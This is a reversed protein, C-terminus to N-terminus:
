RQNAFPDYVASVRRINSYPKYQPLLARGAKMNGDVEDITQLRGDRLCDAFMPTGNKLGMYVFWHHANTEPNYAPDKDYAVKVHILMGPKLKEELAANDLTSIRSGRLSKDAAYALHPYIAQAKTPKAGAEAAVTGAFQLCKDSTRFWVSKKAATLGRLLCEPIQPGNIGGTRQTKSAANSPGSTTPATKSNTSLTKSSASKELSTKYPSANPGDSAPEGPADVLSTHVYAYTSGYKIRYWDGERAVIQVRTGPVYGDIIKGWPGVRVNLRWHCNVNGECPYAVGDASSAGVFDPLAGSITEAPNTSDKEQLVTIYDNTTFPGRSPTEAWAASSLITFLMFVIGVSKSFRMDNRWFPAISRQM